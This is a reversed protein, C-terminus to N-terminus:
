ESSTSQGVRNRLHTLLAQAQITQGGLIEISPAVLAIRPSM